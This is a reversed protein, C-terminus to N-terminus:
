HSHWIGWMGILYFCIAFPLTLKHLFRRQRVFTERTQGSLMWRSWTSKTFRDYNQQDTRGEKNAYWGSIILLLWIQMIGFAWLKDM